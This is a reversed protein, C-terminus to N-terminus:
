RELWEKLKDRDGYFLTYLIYEYCIEVAEQEEKTLENKNLDGDIDKGDFLLNEFYHETNSM